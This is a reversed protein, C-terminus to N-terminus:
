HLPLLLADVGSTSAAAAAAAIELCLLVLLLSSSDAIIQHGLDKVGGWVVGFTFSCAYKGIGKSICFCACLIVALLMSWCCQRYPPRM